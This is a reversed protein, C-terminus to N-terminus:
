ELLHDEEDARRNLERTLPSLPHFDLFWWIHSALDDDVVDLLDWMLDIARPDGRLVLADVAAQAPATDRFDMVDVLAQTVRPDQVRTLQRIASCRVEYDDARLATLLTDVEVVDRFHLRPIPGSSAAFVM